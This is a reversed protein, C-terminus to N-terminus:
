LLMQPVLAICHYGNTARSLCQFNRNEMSTGNLAHSRTLKPSHNTCHLECSKAGDNGKIRRVLQVSCLSAPTCFATQGSARWAFQAYHEGSTPPDRGM